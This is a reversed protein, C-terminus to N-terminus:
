LHQLLVDISVSKDYDPRRELTVDIRAEGGPKLTVAASQVKVKLIDSPQTVAISQLQVEFVGRGGGPFYIEENATVTRTLTEEKGDSSKISATGIIQVNVADKSADDAATLVILGQTM